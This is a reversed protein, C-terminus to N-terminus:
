VSRKIMSRNNIKEIYELTNRETLWEDRDYTNDIFKNGWTPQKKVIVAMKTKLATQLFDVSDSNFLVVFGNGIKNMKIAVYRFLYGYTPKILYRCNKTEFAKVALLNNVEFPKLQVEKFEAVICNKKYTNLDYNM